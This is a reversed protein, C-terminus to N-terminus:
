RASLGLDFGFRRTWVTEYEDRFRVSLPLPHRWGTAVIGDSGNAQCDCSRVGLGVSAYV